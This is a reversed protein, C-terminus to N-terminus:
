SVSESPVPPENGIFPVNVGASHNAKGPYFLEKHKSIWPKKPPETEPKVPPKKDNFRPLHKGTKQFTLLDLLREEDLSLSTKDKKYSKNLEDYGRMSKTLGRVRNQVKERDAKESEKPRNSPM